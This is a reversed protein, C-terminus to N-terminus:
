CGQTSKEERRKEERRKQSYFFALCPLLSLFGFLASTFSLWVLCFHFFALCPLCFHFFALFLSANTTQTKIQFKSDKSPNWAEARPPNFTLISGLVQIVGFQSSFLSPLKQSHVENARAPDIARGSPGHQNFYRSNGLSGVRGHECPLLWKWTHPVHKNQQSQKNAESERGEKKIPSRVGAGPPSMRCYGSGPTPSM